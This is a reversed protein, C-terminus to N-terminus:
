EKSTNPENAYHGLKFKYSLDDAISHIASVIADQILDHIRGDMFGDPRWADSNHNELTDVVKEIAEKIDMEILDRNM